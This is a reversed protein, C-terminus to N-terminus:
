TALPRVVEEDFQALTDLARATDGLNWLPVIFEDCGADRYAAMIELVESPTGVVGRATNARHPTLWNEDTSMFVLAQTSRSISAPDRDIKECHASLVGNLKALDEPNTWANWIQAHRAAIAMTRVAGRVGLLIPPPTQVPRPECPADSVTYYRGSFSTTEKSLMSAVIQVYEDFRDIRETISGLEIGYSAHENEQWGAGIGVIARGHSVHDLTVFSKAFVAPHRYTASAVLTGLRITTTGAALAGLSVIAEHVPGRLPTADPGNPMFHDAYYAAHWGFSECTRVIELTDAFHRDHNPWVSFRM